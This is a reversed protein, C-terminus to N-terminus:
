RKFFVEASEKNPIYLLHVNIIIALDNGEKFILNKYYLHM